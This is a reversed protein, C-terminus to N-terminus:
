PKTVIAKLHLCWSPTLAICVTTKHIDNVAYPLTHGDNLQGTFEESSMRAIFVNEVGNLSLNHRAAAVSAKMVETAVVQPLLLLHDSIAIM